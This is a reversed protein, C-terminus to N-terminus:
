RRVLRPDTGEIRCVFAMGPSPSGEGGAQGAKDHSCTASPRVGFVPHAPRDIRRLYLVMTQGPKLTPLDLTRYMSLSVCSITSKDQLQDEDAMTLRELRFSEAIKPLISFHLILLPSADEPRRYALERLEGPQFPLTRLSVKESFSRRM